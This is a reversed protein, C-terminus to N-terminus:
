SGVLQCTLNPQQEINTADGLTLAATSCWARMEVYDGATLHVGLATIEFACNLGTLDYRVQGRLVTTNNVFFNLLAVATGGSLTGFIYGRLDYYGTTPVTVRTNNTANDHYSATDYEEQNFAVKTMTSASLPGQTGSAYVKCGSFAPASPTPGPRGDLTAIVTTGGNITEIKVLDVVGGSRTSWDPVGADGWSVAGPFAWLRGGTGDQELWLQVIGPTGSAPWGTLTLTVTAANAVLRHIDALSADVTETSGTNGHDQYTPVSAVVIVRKDTIQNTAMTTDSSPVYVYALGVHGSPLDPAKPTSAATGATVTKVGVASATILDIRPNTGDATGITVNGSTVAVSAAGASPQITGSAVAVTMNPSGQATVTCGTLVGTGAFGAVLIAIDTTYWHSQNISFATDNSEITFSM